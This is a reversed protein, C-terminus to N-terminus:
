GARMNDEFALAGDSGGWLRRPKQEAGAPHTAKSAIETAGILDCFGRQPETRGLVTQKDFSPYIIVAEQVLERDICIPASV